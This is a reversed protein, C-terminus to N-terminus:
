MYKICNLEESAHVTVKFTDNVVCRQLWAIMPFHENRYLRCANKMKTLVYTHFDTSYQVYPMRLRLMSHILEDAQYFTGYWLTIYIRTFWSVSLYPVHKVPTFCRWRPTIIQGKRLNQTHKDPFICYCWLRNIKNRTLTFHFLVWCSLLFTILQAHSWAIVIWIFASLVFLWHTFPLLYDLIAVFMKYM